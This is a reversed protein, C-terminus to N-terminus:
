VKERAVMLTEAPIGADRDVPAAPRVSQDWGGVTTM